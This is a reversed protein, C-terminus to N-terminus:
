RHVEAVRLRGGGRNGKQRGVRQKGLWRKYVDRAATAILSAMSTIVFDRGADAMFRMKARNQM